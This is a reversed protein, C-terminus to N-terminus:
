SASIFDTNCFMSKFFVITQQIYGSNFFFMLSEVNCVHKGKYTRCCCASNGNVKMHPLSLISMALQLKDVSSGDKYSYLLSIPKKLMGNGEIYLLNIDQVHTFLM